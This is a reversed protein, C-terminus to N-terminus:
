CQCSGPNLGWRCLLSPIEPSALPNTHVFTQSGKQCSPSGESMTLILSMPRPKPLKSVQWSPPCIASGKRGLKRVQVTPIM